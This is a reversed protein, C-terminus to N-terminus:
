LEDKRLQENVLQTAFLKLSRQFYHEGTEMIKVNSSANDGNLLLLEWHLNVFFEEDVVCVAFRQRYNWRNCFRIMRELSLANAIKERFTLIVTDPAVIVQLQPTVMASKGMVTYTTPQVYFLMPHDKTVPDPAVVIKYGLASFIEVVDSPHMYFKTERVVDVAYSSHLSRTDIKRLEDGNEEASGTAAFLAVVVLTIRSMTSVRM